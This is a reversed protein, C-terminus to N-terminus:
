LLPFVPWTMHIQIAHLPSSIQFNTGAVGYKTGAGM